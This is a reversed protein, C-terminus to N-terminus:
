DLSPMTKTVGRGAHDHVSGAAALRQDVFHSRGVLRQPEVAQATAVQEAAQEVFVLEGCLTRPAPARGRGGSLRAAGARM